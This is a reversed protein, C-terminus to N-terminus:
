NYPVKFKCLADVITVTTNPGGPAECIYQGPEPDLRINFMEDSESTEDSVITINCIAERQGAAFCCDSPTGVDSSGTCLCIFHGVCVVCM